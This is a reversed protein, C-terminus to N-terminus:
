AIIGARKSFLRWAADAILACAVSGLIAQCVRLALVGHGAGNGALSYVAGMFYPYLPAQYFVDTGIWDGAAIRRAWEDYGKSDGMLLTFFPAHRIQWLYVLRVVLATASIGLLVAKTSRHPTTPIPAAAEARVRRPSKM